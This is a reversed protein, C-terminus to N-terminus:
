ESKIFDDILTILEHVPYDKYNRTILKANLCRAVDFFIRDKEDRMEVESPTTPKPDIMEGHSEILRLVIRAYIPDIGLHKRSLVDRYENMIEPSLGIVYDGRFIERMLRVSKANRDSSKLANVIINTDVVIYM